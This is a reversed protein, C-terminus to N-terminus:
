CEDRHYGGGKRDGPFVETARLMESAYSIYRAANGPSIQGVKASVSRGMDERDEPAGAWGECSLRLVLLLAAWSPQRCLRSHGILPCASPSPARSRSPM